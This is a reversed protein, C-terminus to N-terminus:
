ASAFRAAQDNALASEVRYTFYGPHINKGIRISARGMNRDSAWSFVGTNLGEGRNGSV